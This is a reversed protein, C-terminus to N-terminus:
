EEGEFCPRMSLSLSAEFLPIVSEHLKQSKRFSASALLQNSLLRTLRMRSNAPQLYISRM